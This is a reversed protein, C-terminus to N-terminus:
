ICLNKSSYSVKKSALVDNAKIKVESSQLAEKAHKVAVYRATLATPSNLISGPLAFILSTVVVILRIIIILFLAFNSHVSTDEL